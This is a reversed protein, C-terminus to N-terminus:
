NMWNKTHQQYFSIDNTTAGQISCINAAFDLARKLIITLPWNNQIGFITVASFADGAGVTDQINKIPSSKDHILKEGDYIYAGNEGCTVILIKMPHNQYFNIINKSINDSINKSNAPFSENLFILEEDNIKLWHAQALALSLVNKDCWPERLNIDVFHKLPLPLLTKLTERSTENRLCLSGFYLLDYNDLINPSKLQSPLKQQDIFDFAQNEPIKFSHSTATQSIIVHGTTHKTDTQLGQTQMQWDQMTQQIKKGSEDDGVRSIILPDSNFARLNWSVNFPAGGLIRAGDPFEDFLVEGFIIPTM